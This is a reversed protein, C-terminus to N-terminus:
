SKSISMELFPGFAGGVLLAPAFRGFEGSNHAKRWAVVIEVIRTPPLMLLYICDGGADNIAQNKRCHWKILVIILNSYHFKRIIWQHLLLAVQICFPVSKSRFHGDRHHEVSALILFSFGVELFLCFWDTELRAIYQDYYKAARELDGLETYCDAIAGYAETNGSEEGEKKSIELVLSHYKIAERFKGQRQLSAGPFHICCVTLITLFKYHVSSLELLSRSVSAFSSSYWFFFFFLLLLLM